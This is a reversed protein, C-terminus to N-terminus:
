WGAHSGKETRSPNERPAPLVSVFSGPRIKAIRDKKIKLGIKPETQAGVLIQVMLRLSDRPQQKGMVNEPSRLRNPM